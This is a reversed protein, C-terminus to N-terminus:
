ERAKGREDRLNAGKYDKRPPVTSLFGAAQVPSVPKLGQRGRALSSGPGHAVGGLGCAVTVSAWVGLGASRLLLLWWTPFGSCQLSSYSGSVAVLSLGCSVVFVLAALFLCFFFFFIM